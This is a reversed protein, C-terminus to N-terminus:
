RLAQSRGIEAPARAVDTTDPAPELRMRVQALM